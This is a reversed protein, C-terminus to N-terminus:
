QDQGDIQISSTLPHRDLLSNASSSHDNTKTSIQNQLRASSRRRQDNLHPTNTPTTSSPILRDFFTTVPLSSSSTSSPNTTNMHFLNSLKHYLTGLGKDM